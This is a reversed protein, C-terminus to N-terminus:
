NKIVGQILMFNKVHAVHQVNNFKTKILVVAKGNWGSTFINWFIKLEMEPMKVRKNQIQLNFIHM